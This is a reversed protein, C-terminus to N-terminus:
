AAEAQAYNKIKIIEGYSNVHYIYDTQKTNMFECYEEPKKAPDPAGAPKELNATNQKLSQEGYPNNDAQDPNQQNEAMEAGQQGEQLIEVSNLKIQSEQENISAQINQDKEDKAQQIMAQAEETGAWFNWKVDRAATAEKQQITTNGNADTVSKYQTTYHAAYAASFMNDLYDTRDLRQYGNYNTGNTLTVGFNNATLNGNIDLSGTSKVLSSDYTGNKQFKTLNIASAGAMAATMFSLQGKTEVNEIVGLYNLEENEIVGNGDTDFMFLEEMGTIKGDGDLDFRALQSADTINLNELLDKNFFSCMTDTTISSLNIERAGVFEEKGNFINDNNADTVFSYSTNGNNWGIPDTRNVGGANEGNDVARGGGGNNATNDVGGNNNTNDTGPVTTGGTDDGIADTGDATDDATKKNATAGWFHQTQATFESYWRAAGGHGQPVTLQNSNVNYYIETKNGYLYTIAYMAEKYTFGSDYMQKLISNNQDGSGLAKYLDATYTNSGSYKDSGQTGNEIVGLGYQTKLNEILDRKAATYIPTKNSYQTKNGEMQTAVKSFATYIDKLTTISGINTKYEAIKGVSAEIKGDIDKIADQFDQCELLKKSLQGEALSSYGYKSLKTAITSEVKERPIEGAIYAKLVEESVTAIRDMQTNHLDEAMQAVSYIANNLKEMEVDILREQEVVFETEQEIKKQLAAIQKELEQIKAQIDTRSMKFTGNNWISLETESKSFSFMLEKLEAMNVTSQSAMNSALNSIYGPDLTVKTAM